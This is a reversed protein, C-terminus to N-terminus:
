EEQKMQLRLETMKKKTYEPFDGQMMWSYYSPDQKLV